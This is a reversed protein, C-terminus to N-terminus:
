NWTIEELVRGLKQATIWHMQASGAAPVLM